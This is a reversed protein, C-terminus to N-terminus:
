FQHGRTQKCQLILRKSTCPQHCIKCKERYFNLNTENNGDDINEMKMIRWDGPGPLPYYYQTHSFSNDDGSLQAWVYEAFEPIFADRIVVVQGNMIKSKIGALVEEDLLKPNLFDAISSDSDSSSIRDFINQTSPNQSDPIHRMADSSM